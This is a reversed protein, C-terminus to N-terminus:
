QGLLVAGVQEHAVSLPIREQEVRRDRTWDPAILQHYLTREAGTLHRM